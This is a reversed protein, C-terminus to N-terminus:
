ASYTFAGSERAWQGSIFAGENTSGASRQIRTTHAPNYTIDAIALRHRDNQIPQPAQFVAAIVRRANRNEVAIIVQGDPSRRTLEPVKLLGDAYIGQLARIADAMRAPGGMAARGFFIRMRMAVAGAIDDHYM